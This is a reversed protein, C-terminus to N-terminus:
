SPLKGPEVFRTHLHRGKRPFHHTATRSNSSKKHAATDKWRHKGGGGGSWEDSRAAFNHDSEMHVPEFSLTSQHSFSARQAMDALDRAQREYDRGRAHLYLTSFYRESVSTAQYDVADTSRRRKGILDGFENLLAILGFLAPELQTFLDGLAWTLWSFLFMVSDFLKLLIFAFIQSMATLAVPAVTVVVLLADFIVDIFFWLVQYMAYFLTIFDARTFIEAAAEFFSFSFRLNLVALLGLVPCMGNWIERAIYFVFLYLNNWLTIYILILQILPAVILLMYGILPEWLATVILLILWIAFMIGWTYYNSAIGVIVGLLSQVFSLILWPLSVLFYGLAYVTIYLRDVATGVWPPRGNFGFFSSLSGGM